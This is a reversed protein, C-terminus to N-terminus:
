ESDNINLKKDLINRKLTLNKLNSTSNSIKPISLNKIKSVDYPSFNTDKSSTLKLSSPISSFSGRNTLSFGANRCIFTGSPRHDQRGKILGQYNRRDFRSASKSRCKKRDNFSQSIKLKKRRAFNTNEDDSFNQLDIEVQSSSKVRKKLSIVMGAEQDMDSRIKPGLVGAKKIRQPNVLADKLNRKRCKEGNQLYAFHQRGSAHSFRNPGPNIGKRHSGSSFQPVGQEHSSFSSRRMFSSNAYALGLQNQQPHSSPKFSSFSSFNVPNNYYQANYNGMPAMQQGSQPYFRLQHSAWAASHKSILKSLLAAPLSSNKIKFPPTQQFMELLSKGQKRHKRKYKDKYAEVLQCPHELLGNENIRNKPINLDKISIFPRKNQM